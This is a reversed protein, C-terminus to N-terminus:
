RNWHIEVAEPLQKLTKPKTNLHKIWKSNIKTCPSLCPDLKLIRSTSIWIEWCCKNFLSDLLNLLPPGSDVQPPHPSGPAVCTRCVCSFFAQPHYSNQPKSAPCPSGPAWFLLVAPMPSCLRRAQVKEYRVPVRPGTWTPICIERANWPTPTTPRTAPPTHLESTRHTSPLM